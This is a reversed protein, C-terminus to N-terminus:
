SLGVWPMWTSSGDSLAATDPPSSQGMEQGSRRDGSGIAGEFGAAPFATGIFDPETTATTLFGAYYLGSTPVTYPHQMPLTVLGTSEFATGSDDSRALLNGDADYLVLWGDTVGSGAGALGVTIKSVTQGKLLPVGVLHLQDSHPTAPWAALARDFSQSILGQAALLMPDGPPGEPGQPGQPGAQGAVGQSGQAGTPGAAGQAGRAGTLGRPGRAGHLAAIAKGSLDAKQLSGNIVQASGVSNRPLLKESAAYGTSSLAVFLALYAVLNRRLRGRVM